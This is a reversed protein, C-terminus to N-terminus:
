VEFGRAIVGDPRTTDTRNIYALKARTVSGANYIAGTDDDPSLWDFAKVLPTVREIASENGNLADSCMHVFALFHEPTGHEARAGALYGIAFDRIAEIAATDIAQNM